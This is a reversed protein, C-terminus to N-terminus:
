RIKRAPVGAWIQGSPIDELVVAGMGVVAGAGITVGERVSSGQGFYASEGVRVAGGLSARGAFTVGDGVEDDHTILVHPMAVVQAGIRLPTTVVTGALLVSGAGIEAGAPVEAAPHVVSAWRGDPLDLRRVLELRDAPRKAAAICAVLAATHDKALEIPGLVPVGDVVEGHRGPNDDLAGIPEWLEPLARAAALVERALGGAGLLILPQPTV